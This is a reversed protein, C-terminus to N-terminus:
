FEVWRVTVSWKGSATTATYVAIGGAQLAPIYIFMGPSLMEFVQTSPTLVEDLATGTPTAAVNHDMTVGSQPAAGGAKLNIANGIDHTVGAGTLTADKATIYQLQSIQSANSYMVRVSWILVNKTQTGDAFWEAAQNAAATVLGTSCNFAKGGLIMQQINSINVEPNTDSLVAGNQSQAVFLPNSASLTAGLVRSIDTQMRNSAIAGALTALDALISASNSETTLMRGGSIAAALTALDVIDGAAAKVAAKSSSVIAALTDLDSKLATLRGMLSAVTGADGSAGALALLTALDTIAGAPFDGSQADVRQVSPPTVSATVALPGYWRGSQPDQTASAAQPIVIRDSNPEYASTLPQANDDQQVESQLGM